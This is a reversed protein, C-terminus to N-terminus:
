LHSEEYPNRWIIELNENKMIAIEKVYRIIKGDEGERKELFCFAHFVSKLDKELNEEKLSPSWFLSLRVMRPIVGELDKAHISTIVPHGSLASTLIDFMEKGRAEAIILYDPNNRLANAILHDFSSPNYSENMLWTTLDINSDNKITLEEVNDIVVAKQHPSLHNVLWKQLETKGVGTQGAIIISEGRKLFDLLFNKGEEDLFHEDYSVVDDESAIRISFTPVKENKVRGISPYVANVRYPGFSLDLFPTAFSFSREALNAINRLFSLIDDPSLFIESKRRGENRTVYYIDQGNYSIDTVGPITLLESLFSGQFYTLLKSM